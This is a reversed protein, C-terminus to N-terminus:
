IKKIAHIIYLLCFMEVYTFIPANFHPAVYKWALTVLGVNILKGTIIGLNEALKLLKEKEM